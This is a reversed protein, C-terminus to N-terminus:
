ISSYEEDKVRILWSTDEGSEYVQIAIHTFISDPTAGHWHEEDKLIKVIDGPFLPQIHDGRKQIYGKGDTVILIQGKPHSHWNTRATPEFTIRAVNCKVEENKIFRQVLVKGTFKDSDGQETHLSNAKKVIM